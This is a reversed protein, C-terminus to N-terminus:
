ENSKKKQHPSRSQRIVGDLPETDLTELTFDRSRHAAKVPWLGFWLRSCDADEVSSPGLVQPMLSACCMRIRLSSIRCRFSGAHQGSQARLAVNVGGERDQSFSWLTGFTASVVGVLQESVLHNECPPYLTLVLRNRRHARQVTALAGSAVNPKSPPLRSTSAPRTTDTPIPRHPLTRVDHARKENRPLPGRAPPCSSSSPSEHEDQQHTHPLPPAPNYSHCVSHTAAHVVSPLHTLLAM